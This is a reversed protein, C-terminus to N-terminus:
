KEGGREMPVGNHCDRETEPDCAGSAVCGECLNTGTHPPACACGACPTEYAPDEEGGRVITKCETRGLRRSNRAIVDLDCAPTDGSIIGRNHEHGPRPDWFLIDRKETKM